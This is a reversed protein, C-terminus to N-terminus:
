GKNKPKQGRHLPEFGSAAELKWEFDWLILLLRKAALTRNGDRGSEPESCAILSEKPTWGNRMMMAASRNEM